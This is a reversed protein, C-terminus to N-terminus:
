SRRTAGDLRAARLLQAVSAAALYYPTARFYSRDLGLPAFINKQVYADWPDGTIQEIM